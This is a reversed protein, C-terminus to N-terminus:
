GKMFRFKGIPETGVQTRDKPDIEVGWIPHANMDKVLRIRYMLKGIVLEEKSLSGSDEVKLDSDKFFTTKRIARILLVCIVAHRVHSNHSVDKENTIMDFLNTIKEVETNNATPWDSAANPVLFKNQNEIWFSAPKGVIISLSNFISCGDKTDKLRLGYLNLQCQYKHFSGPFLNQQKDFARISSVLRRCARPM